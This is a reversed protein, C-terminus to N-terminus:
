PHSDTLSTLIGRAFSFGVATGSNVFVLEFVQFLSKPLVTRRIKTKQINFEINKVFGNNHQILKLQYIKIRLCKLGTL